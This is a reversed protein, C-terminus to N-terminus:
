FEIHLKLNFVDLDGRDKNFAPHIIHQYDGTLWTSSIINARYFLNIGYEAGQNLRGDGIFGDIGGANLYAAHTKSIWNEAFGLGVLDQERQWRTGKIMTGTSISRDTSTYSYVETKGDSYMARFFLGVDDYLQQELNLGIGWKINPKRAWCLDPATDNDSDYHFGTCTTANKNPDVLFANLADTWRGMNEHNRYALLRVTGAHNYLTHNHELEIQQGYYKFVRSDLPLQNPNKPTILHAFRVAWNNHIYELVGGWTYGRADAAFDYAAHTMFAMNMFQSRLDSAFTNRDFFDLISFNGIRVVLRQSDVTTALQTPASDLHIKEGGLDFNQKFYLRSRYILPVVSGTKQLEFNHIVGGLGKLNSFAKESIIEPVFYLEGGQWTKLGFYFTGTGTFGHEPRNLLSNPSGNLNTYAAPFSTHWDNVYTIQGYANWREDNLDHLGKDALLKMFSFPEDAYSQIAYFLLGLCCFWRCSKAM